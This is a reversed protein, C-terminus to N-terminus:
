PLSDWVCCTKFLFWYTSPVGNNGLSTLSMYLDRKEGYSLCLTARDANSVKERVVCVASSYYNTFLIFTIFLTQLCFSM